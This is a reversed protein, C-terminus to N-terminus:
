NNEKKKCKFCKNEFSEVSYHSDPTFKRSAKGTDFDEISIFKGCYDCKNWIEKKM